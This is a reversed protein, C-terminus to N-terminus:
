FDQLLKSPEQFINQQVDERFIKSADKRQGEMNSSRVIDVPTLYQRNDSSFEKDVEFNKKPFKTSM